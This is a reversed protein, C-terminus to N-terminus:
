LARPSSQETLTSAFDCAAVAERAWGKAFSRACLDLAATGIEAVTTGQQSLGELLKASTVVDSPSAPHSVVAKVFGDLKEIFERTGDQRAAQLERVIAGADKSRLAGAFKVQAEAERAILARKGSPVQGDVKAAQLLFDRVLEPSGNSRESLAAKVLAGAQLARAKVAVDEAFVDSKLKKAHELLPGIESLRLQDAQAEAARVLCEAVGDRYKQRLADANAAGAARNLWLTIAPLDDAGGAELCRSKVGDEISRELLQVVLEAKREAATLAPKAPVEPRRVAAKRNEYATRAAAIGDLQAVARDFDAEDIANLVRARIGNEARSLIEWEVNVAPNIDRLRMAPSLAIRVVSSAEAFNGADALDWIHEALQVATKRQAEDAPNWKLEPDLHKAEALLSQVADVNGQAAEAKAGAIRSASHVLSDAYQPEANELAAVQKFIDVGDSERGDDFAAYGLEVLSRHVPLDLCTKRYPQSGFALRWEDVSMNRNSAACAIRALEASDVPVSQRGEPTEFVIRKGDHSFALNTAKNVPLRLVRQREALNWVIIDAESASAVLDAAPSAAIASVTTSHGILSYAQRFHPERSFALIETSSGAGTALLTGDRATILASPRTQLRVPNGLTKQKVTDFAHVAAQGIAGYLTRGDPSFVLASAAANMMRMNGIPDLPKVRASGEGRKVLLETRAAADWMTVGGDDDGAALWKGDPSFAVTHIKRKLSTNPLLEIDRFPKRSLYFVPRCGQIAPHQDCGVYVRKDGDPSAFVSSFGSVVALQQTGTGLNIWARGLGPDHQPSSDPVPASAPVRWTLFGEAMPVVTTLTNGSVGILVPDLDVPEVDPVFPISTLERTHLNLKVLRSGAWLAISDTQLVFRGASFKASESDIAYRLSPSGTGHLLFARDDTIVLCADGNASVAIARITKDSLAVAEVNTQRSERDWMIIQGTDLGVIMRREDAAFALASVRTPIVEVSRKDLEGTALNLVAFGRQGFQFAVATGSGSIVFAGVAPTNPVPIAAGIQKRAMLDWVELRSEPKYNSKLPDYPDSLVVAALKGTADLTVSSIQASMQMTTGVRKGSEVDYIEMRARSPLALYRGDGSLAYSFSRTVKSSEFLRANAPYQFIAQALARHADVTPSARYAEVGLLWSYAKGPADRGQASAGVTNAQAALQRSLAIAAREAAIRHQFFAAVSVGAIVTAVTGGILRTIRRQRIEKGFIEDKSIRRITASLTAVADAFRPNSMTLRAEPDLAWRLDVHLPEAPFATLAAPPLGTTKEGNYRGNVTDWAIEGGTHVIIIRDVGRKEAWYTFEKQVWKSRAAEESAFFLLFESDDLAAVIAGWLDPSASLNSEDRYLRVVRFKWFPKAFSRLADQIARAVRQQGPSHSYSMFADFRPKTPAPADTM